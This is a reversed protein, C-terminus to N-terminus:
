ARVDVKAPEEEGPSGDVFTLEGERNVHWIEITTGMSVVIAGRGLLHVHGEVEVLWGDDVEEASRLALRWGVCRDPSDEKFFAAFHEQRVKPAPLDQEFLELFPAASERQADTARPHLEATTGQWIRQKERRKRELEAMMLRKRERYSAKYAEIAQADIEADGIRPIIGRGAQCDPCENAPAASPRATSDAARQAQLESQEWTGVLVASGIAVICWKWKAIFVSM